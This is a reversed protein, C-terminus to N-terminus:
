AFAASVSHVIACFAGDGKAVFSELELYTQM